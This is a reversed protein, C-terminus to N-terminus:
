KGALLIRAARALIYADRLHDNEMIPLGQTRIAEDIEKRSFAKGLVKKRAESSTITFPICGDLYLGYKIAGILESLKIIVNGRQPMMYMGEIVVAGIKYVRVLNRIREVIDGIRRSQEWDKQTPEDNLTLLIKDEDNITVLGTNSFSPDIGLIKVKM